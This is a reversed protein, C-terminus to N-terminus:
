LTEIINWLIPIDEDSVGHGSNPLEILEFNELSDQYDKIDLEEIHSGDLSGKLLKVPAKIENLRPYLNVFHSENKIGEVAKSSIPYKKDAIAKEYWNEDVPINIAAHDILVLGRIKNLNELAYGLSWAVGASNAVLILDTMEFHNAVTAIDSTHDDFSYGKEPSDSSGRGRLSMSITKRKNFHKLAKEWTYANDGMGHVFLIFPATGEQNKVQNKLVQIKVGDNNVFLEEIM